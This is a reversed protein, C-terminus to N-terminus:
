IAFVCFKQEKLYDKVIQMETILTGESSVVVSSFGLEKCKKITDLGIVPLDMNFNQNLKPIKVLVPGFNNNNLYDKFLGGARVLMADTGELAEIAYVLKHRVVASQGVDFSSITNLLNVGFKSNEIVFNKLKTSFFEEKYFGKNFFCDKLISKIPLIEFGNDNFFNQVLKLASNDGLNSITDILKHTKKHHPITKTSIRNIKGAMVLHTIKNKKLVTIWSNPDTLSVTESNNNFSSPFSHDKVCLVFANPNEKAIQKPFDGSGAIIGIKM